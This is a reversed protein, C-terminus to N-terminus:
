KPLSPLDELIAFDCYQNWGGRGNDDVGADPPSCLHRVDAVTFPGRRTAKPELRGSCFVETSAPTHPGLKNTVRVHFCHAGAVAGVNTLDCRGNGRSDM